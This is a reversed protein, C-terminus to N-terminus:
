HSVYHTYKILLVGFSKVWTCWRCFTRHSLIGSPMKDKCLIVHPVDQNQFM